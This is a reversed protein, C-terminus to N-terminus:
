LWGERKYWDAALRAGENWRVEPTWGLENQAKKSHAVWYPHRLMAAKERTLMVAKGAMKGYAEVFLAAAQIATVPLGRRLWAKRGMAEEVVEMAKRQEYVEGDTIFYTAGSPVDASIARICAHACDPGYVLTMKSSGDGVIPLVGRSVSRFVEFIEVDRPGYIGTPRLITVPLKDGEGRAIREAELKSRGYNTIPSEQSEDVPEGTASPGSAELSSVLVFRKLRPAESKAADLLNRTGGVNTRFFDDPTRAKVLGASHVVADVGKMAAKVAGADEIAGERFELGELSELFRRNSTKRVLAVVQHGGKSLLEAVHSGLFGSAGTVLVRM